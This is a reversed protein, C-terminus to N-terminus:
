NLTSYFTEITALIIQFPIKLLRAFSPIADYNRAHNGFKFGNIKNQIINEGEEAALGKSELQKLHRVFEKYSEVVGVPHHAIVCDYGNNKAYLLETSGIDIGYLIKKINNGEVYIASDNPLENMDVLRLSIDVIEDTAIM